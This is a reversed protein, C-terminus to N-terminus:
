MGRFIYEYQEDLEQRYRGAKKRILSRLKEANRDMDCVKEILEDAKLDNIDLCYESLEMATMLSVCKHHFSIATVPKDSLLAMVISHFRTAVVIDTGALQSLLEEVSVAPEDIIRNADYGSVRKGLLRRFEQIAARDCTDGILLRVDYEHALLWTVLIVLADLYNHYTAASPREVSYKGAYQMVGVGVVPRGKKKVDKLSVAPKRLSFVLDPYVRDNSGVFGISRLYRLTSTDRYSRFNALALSSKVFLRGLRGYIPGAGVSVFFLKCGRLKSILSWAFIRYPGWYSLGYADTLPGTGPIILADTGKLTIFADLWRCLESPMGIAVWHLMKALRNHPAWTKVVKRCIPVARINHAAAIVEPGTCICTVDAGPAFRRLHHLIAQFTGENGLNGPGFNGLLSIKRGRDELATCSRRTLSASFLNKGEVSQGGPRLGKAEKM